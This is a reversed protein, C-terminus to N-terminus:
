PGACRLIASSARCSPTCVPAFARPRRGRPEAPSTSRCPMLLVFNNPALVSPIFAPFSLDTSHACFTHKGPCCTTEFHPLAGPPRINTVIIPSDDGSLDNEDTMDVVTGRSSPAPGNSGAGSHQGSQLGRRRSYRQLCLLVICIYHCHYFCTLHPASSFHCLNVHDLSSLM